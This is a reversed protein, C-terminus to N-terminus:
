QDAETICGTRRVCSCWVCRAAQGNGRLKVQACDVEATHGGPKCLLAILNLHKAATALDQISHSDQGLRQAGAGLGRSRLLTGVVVGQKCHGTRCTLRGKGAHSGENM